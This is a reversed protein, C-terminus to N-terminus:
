FRSAVIRSRVKLLGRGRSCTPLRAAQNLASTSVGYLEALDHSLMINHGRIIYIRREVLGAPVLLRDTPAARHQKNM